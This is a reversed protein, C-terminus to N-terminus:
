FLFFFYVFLVIRCYDIGEYGMYVGFNCLCFIINFSGFSEIIKWVLLVIEILNVFIYLM